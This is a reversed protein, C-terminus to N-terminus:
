KKKVYYPPKRLGGDISNRCDRWVQKETETRSVPFHTLTIHKVASLKNVDLAIKTLGNQSKGSCNHGVLEDLTFLKKVCNWAFNQRSSIDDKLAIFRNEFANINSLSFPANTTQQSHLIPTPQSNLTSTSQLPQSNLTSTPQLNQSTAQFTQQQSTEQFTQQQSTAQFTQQQSTEQFTQQHSTEKFTQQHQSTAKFTQQQPHLPVSTPSNTLTSFVDSQMELEQLTPLDITPLDPLQTEKFRPPTQQQSHQKPQSTPSPNLLTLVQADMECDLTPHDPRRAVRTAISQPMEAIPDPETMKILTTFSVDDAPPFKLTLEEMASKQTELTSRLNEMLTVFQTRESIVNTLMAKVEKVENRLFTVESRLDYSDDPKEVPTEVVSLSKAICTSSVVAGKKKVQKVVIKEGEVSRKKGRKKKPSTIPPMVNVPELDPLFDLDQDTLHLDSECPLLDEYEATTGCQFTICGKIPDNTQVIRELGDHALRIFSGCVLNERISKPVPIKRTRLLRVGAHPRISGAM